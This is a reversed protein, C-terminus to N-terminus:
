AIPEQHYDQIIKQLLTILKQTHGTLEFHQQFYKKGNVGLNERESHEMSFLRIINHALAVEDEAPGTLGVQAQKILNAAEGNLSAIIPKGAALYETLKSPITKSLHDDSNLTVLLASAAAYIEPMRAYPLQAIISVNTLHRQTIEESARQFMSGSGILFFHIRDNKILLEASHLITQWSQVKGINGAFVISFKEQMLQSLSEPITSLDDNQVIPEATTNSYLHIKEPQDSLREISERFAESQILIADSRRYIFQVLRQVGSLLLRNKIYGTSALAEPWLDQVWLVLPIRKLKAYLIAPLAQLIPSVGYVFLVDFKKRRLLFPAYLFGLFIFSLYNLTLRLFSNKRPILPIRIIKAGFYEEYHVGQFRYNAFITGEPYNPKGTFVTTNVGLKQLMVVLQNIKFIEPWFYQSWLLMNM